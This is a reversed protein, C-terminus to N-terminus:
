LNERVATHGQGRRRKPHKAKQGGGEEGDIQRSKNSRGIVTGHCDIGGDNLLEALRRGADVEGLHLHRPRVDTDNGQDRDRREGYHEPQARPKDLICPQPGVVVQDNHGKDQTDASTDQRHFTHTKEDKEKGKQTRSNSSNLQSNIESLVRVCMTAAAPAPLCTQAKFISSTTADDITLVVEM